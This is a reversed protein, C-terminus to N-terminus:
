FNYRMISAAQGTSEDIEVIVCNAIIDNKAVQFRQPLSMLYHQIIEEKRDGIISDRSGVMGVDTIYAMRGNIVQEDATPVHTHTGLCATAQEALYYALARKESSAEAHFDVIIIGTVEALRQVIAMGIRFPNEIPRMYVRGELNVVGIKVGEKEFVHSGRGPVGEPYNAPRLVRVESDIFTVADRYKWVHNGTTICDVGASFLEKASKETIGVGGAINEGQAITFFIYEKKIIDPLEARVKARGPNGIIDGIFLLRKM